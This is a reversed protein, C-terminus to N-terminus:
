RGPRFSRMTACMPMGEHLTGSENDRELGAALVADLHVHADILSGSVLRGGCEIVQGAEVEINAEVAIIRDGKIAIDSNRVPEDRHAVNANKLIIDM